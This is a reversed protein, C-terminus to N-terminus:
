NPFFLPSLPINMLHQLLGMLGFPVSFALQSAPGKQRDTDSTRFSLPIEQFSPLSHVLRWVHEMVVDISENAEKNDFLHLLSPSNSQSPTSADSKPEMAKRLAYRFMEVNDDVCTMGHLVSRNSAEGTDEEGGDTSSLLSAPTDLLSLIPTLNSTCADEQLLSLHDQSLVRGSVPTRQSLYQSIFPHLLKKFTGEEWPKKSKTESGTNQKFDKSVGRSDKMQKRMKQLASHETDLCYVYLYLSMYSSPVDRLRRLHQRLSQEDWAHTGYRSLLHMLGQPHLVWAQLGRSFYHIHNHQISLVPNTELLSDLMLRLEIKKTESVLHSSPHAAPSHLVTSTASLVDKCLNMAHATSQFFCLNEWQDDSSKQSPVVTPSSHISTEGESVAPSHHIM